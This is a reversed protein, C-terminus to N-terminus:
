IYKEIELSNDPNVQKLKLFHFLEGAFWEIGLQNKRVVQDLWDLEGPDIIRNDFAIRICDRVFIRAIEKGSFDPPDDIAPLNSMIDRMAFECFAPDFRLIDVFKKVYAERPDKGDINKLYLLLVGKFYNMRDLPSIIM